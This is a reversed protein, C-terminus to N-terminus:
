AAVPTPARDKAKVLIVKKGEPLFQEDVHAYSTHSTTGAALPMPPQAPHFPIKELQTAVSVGEHTFHTKAKILMPLHKIMHWLTWRHQWLRKRFRREYSKSKYFRLIHWNYLDEMQERSSFGQPIYVFNLCNMLRWDEHFNGDKGNNHIIEHWMPAGHFPSFKTMNMEDLDLELVFDSTKKFSEPTEGPLGMIFLGKVRMGLKQIRRVTARVMDPELGTKHREMMGPDATEIGMSLQLAGARKMLAFLEEDDNHGVRIACSWDMGLPKRILTECLEVVRKRSATFLDDYFNIHHVGYTDRLHKMHEWTYEASNHRYKHEYVTRDCFSCTFPCGRSTIMNTGYRKIYSFLPLHYGSAFGDLKNWAPFPLEDLDNIRARRENTVVRDGDRWVLNSITALPKGDALDELAGEGEGVCLYDIQPFHELLQGGISSPHVAGFIIKIEPRKKKILCAIDYGDLFASTTTSFGVMDPKWDLVKQATEEANKPPRPGLCDILMTEHGHKDLWSALTLIGIPAMRNAFLTLDPQGPCFNYGAPHVLAVRM